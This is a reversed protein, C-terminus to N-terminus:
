NNAREEWHEAIMNVIEKAQQQWNETVPEFKSFTYGTSMASVRDLPYGGAIGLLDGKISFDNKSFKFAYCKTNNIVVEGLLEIKDPFGNLETPYRLWDIMNSMAIRDQTVDGLYTSNVGLREM